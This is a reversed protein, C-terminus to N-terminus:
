QRIFLEHVFVVDLCVYRFVNRLSQELTEGQVLRALKFHSITEVVFTHLAGMKDAHTSGLGDGYCKACLDYSTECETCNYRTM